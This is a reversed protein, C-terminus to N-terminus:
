DSGSLIPVLKNNNNYKLLLHYTQLYDKDACQKHKEYANGSNSIIFYYSLLIQQVEDGESASCM